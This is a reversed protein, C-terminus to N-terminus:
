TTLRWPFRAAAEFGQAVRDALEFRLDAFEVLFQGVDLLLEGLRLEVFAAIGLQRAQHFPLFLQALREALGFLVPQVLGVSEFGAGSVM